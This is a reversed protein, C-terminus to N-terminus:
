TFSFSYKSTIIFNLRFMSDRVLGWAMASEVQGNVKMTIEVLGDIFVALKSDMKGSVRSNEWLNQVQASAMAMHEGWIGSAWIHVVMMSIM